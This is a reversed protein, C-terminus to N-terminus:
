LRHVSMSHISAGRRPGPDERRDEEPECHGCRDGHHMGPRLVRALGRRAELVGTGAAAGRGAGGWGGGLRVGPTGMSGPVAGPWWTTPGNIVGSPWPGSPGGARSGLTCTTRKEPGFPRFTSTRAGEGVGTGTPSPPPM